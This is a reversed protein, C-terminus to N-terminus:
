VVPNIIFSKSPLAVLVGDLWIWVAFVSLRPFRTNWYAPRDVFLVWLLHTRPTDLGLGSCAAAFRVHGGILDILRDAGPPEFDEELGLFGSGSLLTL